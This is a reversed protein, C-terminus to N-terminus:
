EDQMIFPNLVGRQLSDLRSKDDAAIVAAPRYMAIIDKMRNDRFEAWGGELDHKNWERENPLYEFQYRYTKFPGFSESDTVFIPTFDRIMVESIHVREVLQTLEEPAFGWAVFLLVPAEAAKMREIRQPGFAIEKVALKLRRARWGIYGRVKKALNKARAFSVAAKEGLAVRTATLKEARTAAAAPTGPAPEPRWPRPWAKIVNEIVDAAEQSGDGAFAQRCRASIAERNKPDLMFTVAADVRADDIEEVCLAVGIEQAYAARAPQDELATDIRSPVIISPIAYGIMEHFSNYGAATVVFDFARYYKGLPYLTVKKVQDPLNMFQNAIVSESVVVQLGPEQTLRRVFANAATLVDNVNGAGLQVLVVPGEAQVGLAKRAEARDLLESEQLVLMPPVRVVEDRQTYTVGADVPASVEGPEIIAHFLSSQALIMGGVGGKWMARRCWVYPRLKDKEIAHALGEYIQNADVVVALPDYTALIEQTRQELRAKWDDVARRRSPSDRKEPTDAPPITYDWSPYYEAMFGERRIVHLAQSMTLFVAQLHPPLRRAIAIMRSLHGMGAGNSTIFLVNRKTAPKRIRLSIQEGSPKGILGEVRRSHTKYSFNDRVYKVGLESHMRYTAADARFRLVIEKVEEPKAYLASEQFLPQFHAPLIAVAGSAIAELITRGFAEVLTPHHYYVFFDIERLFKQPPISRFEYVRWNAPIRKLVAEPAQAGGLIKVIFREDDPYAALIEAASAPWKEPGPRSHRGIVPKQAAFRSRDLLWEDVNIVEYWDQDLLNLKWGSDLLTARVLPGIPAWLCGEGFVKDITDRVSRVNYYSQSRDRNFPASNAVLVKVDAQIGRLPVAPPAEFVSPHWLTLLRAKLARTVPVLDALGSQVVDIIAKNFPREVKLVSSPLQILATSYGATAQAKVQEAIASGTGGPFRFDSVVVIDYETKLL